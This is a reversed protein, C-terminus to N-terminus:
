LVAWAALVLLLSIGPSMSMEEIIGMDHKVSSGLVNYTNMFIQAPFCGMEDLQFPIFQEPDNLVYMGEQMYDLFPVLFWLNLLIMAGAGKALTLFTKKRFTRKWLIICTLATFLAVFECTIMHTMILGTFGFAISIWSKGHERSEEPLTYVKWFGYLLIPLFLMATYEGVAARVYLCTMRYINMSYLMACIMGTKRDSMKSFCYYAVFVTATNVLFVYFQYCSQISIGFMRLVAPIYLFLDGYFISVAYGHGNLWAPQIRVPFMGSQLGERLGEIRMLHFPLDHWKWPLYDIFLPISEFFILLVLFKLERWREQNQTLRKWYFVCLLILDLLLLKAASLLLFNAKAVPSDTITIGQILLYCEETVDGNLSGYVKMPRDDYSVKFDCTSVGNSRSQINGSLSPVLREDAYIVNMSVTGFYEYQLTVTYMGKPLTFEPSSIRISESSADLYFGQEGSDYVLDDQTFSIAVPERRIYLFGMMGILLIEVAAIVLWIRKNKRLREAM